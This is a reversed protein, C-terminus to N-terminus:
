RSLWTAPRPATSRWSCTSPRRPSTAPATSRRPASPRAPIGSRMEDRLSAPEDGRGTDRLFEYLAVLGPGSVVREWSVHQPFRRRLWVLLEAELPGHPAFSAHGGESAFPRHHRGDWYLGAEGLGTGAAIVAGNGVAAPDGAALEAFAAAPLAGIGWGTAELDNIVWARGRLVRSLETADVVWPLNTAVARGQRVPGAVGVCAATPRSGTEDLFRHVVDALGRHERSPYVREPSEALRTGDEDFLALRSNTGGIDGGLITM